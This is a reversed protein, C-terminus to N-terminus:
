HINSKNSPLEHEMCDGHEHPCEICAIAADLKAEDDEFSVRTARLAHMEAVRVQVEAFSILKRAPV